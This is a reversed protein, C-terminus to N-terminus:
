LAYWLWGESPLGGPDLGKNGAQHCMDLDQGSELFLGLAGDTQVIQCIGDGDLASVVETTGADFVEPCPLLGRGGTRDASVLALVPVESAIGLQSVHNFSGLQELAHLVLPVLAAGTALPVVLGQGEETLIVQLQETVLAHLRLAVPAVLHQGNCLSGREVPFVKLVIALEQLPFHFLNM